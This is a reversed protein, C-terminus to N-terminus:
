CECSPYSILLGFDRELNLSQPSLLGLVYQYNPKTRLYIAVDACLPPLGLLDVPPQVCVPLDGPAMQPSCPHM